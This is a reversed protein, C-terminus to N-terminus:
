IKNFKHYYSMCNKSVEARIHDADTGAPYHKTAAGCAQFPDSRNVPFTYLLRQNIISQACGLCTEQHSCFETCDALTQDLGTFGTLTIEARARAQTSRTGCQYRDGHAHSFTSGETNTQAGESFFSCKGELNDLQYMVCNPLSLCHASCDSQTFNYGQSKGWKECSDDGAAWGANCTLAPKIEFHSHLVSLVEASCIGAKVEMYPAVECDYDPAPKEGFPIRAYQYLATPDPTTLM